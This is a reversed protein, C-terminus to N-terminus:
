ALLTLAVVVGLQVVALPLLAALALRVLRRQPLLPFRRAVLVLVAALVAAALWTWWGATGLLLVSAAAAISVPQVARGAGALLRAAGGLRDVGPDVAWPLLVGGVALVLLFAVPAVAAPPHAFADIRVDGVVVTALAVILPAEILVTRWRGLLVAGVSWVAEAAVLWVAGGPLDLTLLVARLVPAVLLLAGAVVSLTGTRAGVARTRLLRAGEALPALVAISAPLGTRLGDLVARVAVVGAGLLLVAVVAVGADGM